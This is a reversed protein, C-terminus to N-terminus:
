IILQKVLSIRKIMYYTIWYPQEKNMEKLASSIDLFIFEMGLYM